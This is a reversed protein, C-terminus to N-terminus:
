ALQVGSRAPGALAPEARQEHLGFRAELFRRNALLGNLDHRQLDATIEDLKQDLLQLQARLEELASRGTAGVPPDDLGPIALYAAITRPLYDATTQRVLYLDHSFPADCIAGIGCVLM